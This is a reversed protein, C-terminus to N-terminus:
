RLSDRLAQLKQRTDGNIRDMVTNKTKAQHSIESALQENSHNVEWSFDNASMRSVNDAFVTEQIAADSSVVTIDKYKSRAERALKEIVKDASQGAASFIVEVNGVKQSAGISEKNKAGDFVLIVTTQNDSFSTADNILRDRATNFVEHTHDDQFMLKYNSGSRLVNYGDIILLNRKLKPVIKACGNMCAPM